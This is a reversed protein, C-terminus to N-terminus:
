YFLELITAWDAPITTPSPGLLLLEQEHEGVGFLAVEPGMEDVPGAGMWGGRHAVVNSLEGRPEGEDGISWLHRGLPNAVQRLECLICWIVPESGSCSGHM